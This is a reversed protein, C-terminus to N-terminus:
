VERKSLQWGDGALWTEADAVDDRRLSRVEGAGGRGLARLFANSAKEDIGGV